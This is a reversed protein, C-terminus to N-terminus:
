LAGQVPAFLGWDWQGPSFFSALPMEQHVSMADRQRQDNGSRVTMVDTLKNGHKFGDDHSGGSSSLPEQIRILSVISFRSALLYAGVSIRWAYGSLLASTSARRSISPPHHFRGVGPEIAESLQQDSVLLKTVTVLCKNM